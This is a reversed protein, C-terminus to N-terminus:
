PYLGAQLLLKRVQIRDPRNLQLVLITVRAVATHPVIWGGDVSFHKEWVDQRPNFLPVLQGTKSDFAGVESGKYRNCHFCAWALNDDLDKGGHKVPIIHDPEHRKASHEQHLLCYECRYNARRAILERQVKSVAM